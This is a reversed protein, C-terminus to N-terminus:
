SPRRSPGLADDGNAGLGVHLGGLRALAAQHEGLEGVLDVLAHQLLLDGLEHVLLADVPMESM